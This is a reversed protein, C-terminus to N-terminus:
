KNIKLNQLESWIAPSDEDPPSEWRCRRKLVGLRGRCKVRVDAHTVSRLDRPPLESTEATSVRLHAVAARGVRRRRGHAGAPAPPPGRLREELVDDDEQAHEDARQVMHTDEACGRGHQQADEYEQADARAEQVDM